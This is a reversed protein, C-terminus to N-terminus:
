PGAVVFVATTSGKWYSIAGNRAAVLWGYQNGPQLRATEAESLTYRYTRRGDGDATSEFADAARDVVVVETSGQKIALRFRTAAALGLGPDRWTLAPPPAVTVPGSAATPALLV